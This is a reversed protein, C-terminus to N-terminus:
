AGGDRMAEALDLVRGICDDMTESADGFKALRKKNEESVRILPKEMGKVHYRLYLYNVACFFTVPFTAARNAGCNDRWSEFSHSVACESFRARM